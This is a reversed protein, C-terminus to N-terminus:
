PNIPAQRLQWVAAARGFDSRAAIDDLLVARLTRRADILETLSLAGKSYALEAMGAVQRARPVIEDQFRASRAAAERLDAQLRASDAAATRQVKDLQAQAQELQARARAIEGEYGYTGLMGGLPMQLRLEVMRRSTGPQHDLSAGVTVDNRRLAMASDLAAQAGQVRSRAARLDPRQETDIAAAAAAPVSTVPGADAVRLAAPLGTLRALALQARIVEAEAVRLESQARRAEIDTRLADQQSIDGARLRRQAAEALEGASRALGAVQELRSQAALLDYFAGAAAQQQQVLAEALDLRTAQLGQQAAETRLGRKNGREVTWDLGVGKDIRKERWLNGPGLGNDLDIAGAKASLTPLPARDAAQLDGQAASVAYRAWAVDPNERAARLAQELTVPPAAPAASLPTGLVAPSSAPTTPPTPTAPTTAASQALVAGAAVLAAAPITLNLFRM